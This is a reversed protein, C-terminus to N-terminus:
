VDGSARTTSRRTTSFFRRRTMGQKRALQGSLDKLRWEVQRQQRNQPPPYYEDSAVILTPIPSAFAATEAPLLARLEDDNLLGM